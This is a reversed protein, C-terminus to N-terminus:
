DKKARRRRWAAGGIATVGAALLVLTGPEPVSTNHNPGVNTISKNSDTDPKGCWSPVMSCTASANAVPAGVVAAVGAVAILALATKRMFERSGRENGPFCNGVAQFLAFETGTGAKAPNKPSKARLTDAAACVQLSVRCDRERCHTVHM